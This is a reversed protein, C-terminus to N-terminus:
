DPKPLVMDLYAKLAPYSAPRRIRIREGKRTIVEEELTGMIHAAHLQIADVLTFDALDGYVNYLIERVDSDRLKRDVIEVARKRSRPPHVWTRRLAEVKADDDLKGTGAVVEILNEALIRDRKRM